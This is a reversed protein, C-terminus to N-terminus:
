TKGEKFYNSVGCRSKERNGTAPQSSETGRLHSRSFDLPFSDEIDRTSRPSICRCTSSRVYIGTELGRKAIRYRPERARRVAKNRKANDPSQAGVRRTISQMVERFCVKASAM